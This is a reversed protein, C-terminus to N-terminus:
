VREKQAKNLQAKMQSRTIVQQTGCDCCSVRIEKETEVDLECNPRSCHSCNWFMTAIM